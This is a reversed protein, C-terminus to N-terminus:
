YGVDILKAVLRCNKYNDNNIKDNSRNDYMMEYDVGSLVIVAIDPFRFIM